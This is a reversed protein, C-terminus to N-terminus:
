KKFALVLLIKSHLFLFNKKAYSYMVFVMVYSLTKRVLLMSPPAMDFGLELARFYYFFM